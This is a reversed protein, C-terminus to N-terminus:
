VSYFVQTKMVFSSRVVATTLFSSSRMLTSIEPGSLWLRRSAMATACLATVL